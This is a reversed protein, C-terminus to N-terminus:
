PVGRTIPLLPTCQQSDRAKLYASDGPQIRSIRQVHIGSILAMQGPGIGGEDIYNVGVAAIESKGIREPM